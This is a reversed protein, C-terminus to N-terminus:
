AARVRDPSTGSAKWRRPGPKSTAALTVASGLSGLPHDYGRTDIEHQALRPM